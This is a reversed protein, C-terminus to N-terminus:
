NHFKLGFLIPLMSCYIIRRLPAQM